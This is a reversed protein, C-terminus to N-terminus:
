VSSVFLEDAMALEETTDHGDIEDATLYELEVCAYAGAYKTEHKDAMRRGMVLTILNEWGEAMDVFKRGALQGVLRHCGPCLAILCLNDPDNEKGLVHHASLGKEKPQLCLQCVGEALGIANKRNGGFYWKDRIMDASCKRSCTKQKKSMPYFTNICYACKAPALDSHKRAYEIWFPMNHSQIAHVLMEIGLGKMRVFQRISGDFVDLEKTLLAISAKDYGAGRPVKKALKNGYRSGLGLRSIKIAVGYYPRALRRSIESITCSSALNRLEGLEEASWKQNPLKYGLAKLREWVSQGVIGLTKAAKWVSGTKEYAAIIQESTVRQPM